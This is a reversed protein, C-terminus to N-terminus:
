PFYNNQHRKPLMLCPWARDETGFHKLGAASFVFLMLFFFLFSFWNSKDKDSSAGTFGFCRNACDSKKWSVTKCEFWERRWQISVANPLWCCVRQVACLGMSSAITENQRSRKNKWDKNEVKEVKEVSCHSVFPWILVTVPQKSVLLNFPSTNIIWASPSM